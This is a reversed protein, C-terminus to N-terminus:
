IPFAARSGNRRNVQQEILLREYDMSQLYAPRASPSSKLSGSGFIDAGGGLALSLVVAIGAAAAAVRVAGFRVEALAGRRLSPVEIPRELAEFPATRLAHTFSTANSRFAACAPCRRVHSAVMARELQSLEGDLDLSIQGRVRDCIPNPVLEM